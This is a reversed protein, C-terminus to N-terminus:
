QEKVAEQYEKACDPEDSSSIGSRIRRLLSTKQNGSMALWALGQKELSFAICSEVSFIGSGESEAMMFFGM